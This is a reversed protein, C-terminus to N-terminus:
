SIPTRDKNGFAHYTMETCLCFQIGIESHKRSTNDKADTRQFCVFREAPLFGESHM